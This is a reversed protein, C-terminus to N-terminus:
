RVKTIGGNKTIGPPLEVQSVMPCGQFYWQKVWNKSILILFNKRGDANGENEFALIPDKPMFCGFLTFWRTSSWQRDWWMRLVFMASFLQRACFGVSTYMKEQTFLFLWWKRFFSLVIPGSPLTGLNWVKKWTVELHFLTFFRLFYILSPERHNSFNRFGMWIHQVM